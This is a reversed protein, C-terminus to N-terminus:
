DLLKTGSAKIIETWQFYVDLEESTNGLHGSRCIDTRRGHCPVGRSGPSMSITRSTPTLPWTQGLEILIQGLEILILIVILLLLLIQFFIGGRM